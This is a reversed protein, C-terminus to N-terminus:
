RRNRRRWAVLCMFLAVVGPVALAGYLLFRGRAARDMGIELRSGDEGASTIADTGSLYSVANLFFDRNANARAALPANLVFQVDGVAIVRTPRLALDAGTAGGREVAAAVCSGGVEALSSFRIRDAGARTEAAASPSFAVPREFLVSSGKLPAVVPHESFSTVVVDSGSQTHLGAVDVPSLTRLGWQSLLPTVGGSEAANILVLLRGGEKLYADLRSVEARSFEERAGAVIVLATDGSLQGSETLDIARNSYGDLALERAIDSLGFDGYDSCSAEGHGRTWRVVGHQPPTTLRLVTSAALREGFSADIPVAARRRGHAFLVSGPEVGERVLRAADGLDWRPDVFSVTLRVGGRAAAERSLARLTRAVARFRTDARSLFCTASVDGHADALIGATRPSCPSATRLPVDFTMDFRLVLWVALVTFVTALLVTLFSVARALASRRGALRLSAIIRASVFVCAWTAVAYAIVLGPSFVGSAFDSVHADFPLEGFFRGGEPAWLRFAFWLGRPLGATVLLAACAAAAGHRFAASAVLSIASWLAGQIALAFFGLAFAGPDFAARPALFHLLGFSLALQLVLTLLLLTWVGFFKGWAYDGEGAATTLLFDIRGTRREESWVDMALFAALVPVVPAVAASWVAALSLAGGEGSALGWAFLAMSSALFVGVAFATSFLNRAHGVTRRWTVRVPSM